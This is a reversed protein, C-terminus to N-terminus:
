YEPEILGIHDDKRKYVVCTKETEANLFVLFEDRSSELQLAAEEVVMPKVAYKKTKVVKFDEGEAQSPILGHIVSGFSKRSTGRHRGTKKEKSKQARKALRSLAADISRYMDMSSGKASLQLDKGSLNVECVHIKKEFNLIVHADRLKGLHRELRRVKDEIHSKLGETLKEHRSTIHVKMSTEEPSFM